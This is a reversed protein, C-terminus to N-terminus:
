FIYKVKLEKLQGNLQESKLPTIGQDLAYQAIKKMEHLKMEIEALIRDQEKYWELQQELYKKHEQEDKEMLEEQLVAKYALYGLYDQAKRM